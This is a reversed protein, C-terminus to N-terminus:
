VKPEWNGMVSDNDGFRTGFGHFTSETEFHTKQEKV